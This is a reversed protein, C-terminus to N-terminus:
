NKFRSLIKLKNIKNKSKSGLIEDLVENIENINMEYNADHAITKNPRFGPFSPMNALPSRQSVEFYDYADRYDYFNLIYMNTAGNYQYYLLGQPGEIYGKSETINDSTDKESEVYYHLNIDFYPFVNDWTIEHKYGELACFLDELDRLDVDKTERKILEKIIAKFSNPFVTKSLIKNIRANIYESRSFM